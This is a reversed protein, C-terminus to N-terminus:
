LFMKVQVIVGQNEVTDAIAMLHEQRLQYWAILTMKVHLEDTLHHGPIFIASIVVATFLVVLNGLFLSGQLWLVSMKAQGAVGQPSPDVLLQSLLEM